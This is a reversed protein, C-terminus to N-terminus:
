FKYTFGTLEESVQWLSNAIEMDRAEDSTKAIKKDAFYKGTIGELGDSLALYICTSAGKEPTRMLSMSTKVLFGMFGKFDSGFRTHVGGPHVCNATIKTDKLKDALVITFLINALKSQSYARMSSYKTKEFFLDDFNIHGYKHAMSSISIIRSPQDKPILDLLLGTLLFYGIHNLAFTYEFGDKTLKRDPFIGGANNILVDLRNYKSKFASAAQKIGETESLDACIIDIKENGTSGSIEKKAQELKDQNRSVMVLNAGTQAIAEATVRGMGSTAGTVLYNKNNM